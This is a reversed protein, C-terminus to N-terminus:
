RDNLIDEKEKIRNIIKKLENENNEDSFEDCDIEENCSCPETNEIGCGDEDGCKGAFVTSVCVPRVNMLVPVLDDKGYGASKWDVGAPLESAPIFKRQAWYTVSVNPTQGALKCLEVFNAWDQAHKTKDYINIDMSVSKTKEDLQVNSHWGVFYTIDQQALFFGTHTGMHNIDHLTGEWQKYIRKLEKFPFFGGNMFRDGIIAVMRKPTGDQQGQDDQNEINCGCQTNIFKVGMDCTYLVEDSSNKHKRRWIDYCVAKVQKMPWDPHEKHVYPICRAIFDKQKEGKKPEPNTIPQDM